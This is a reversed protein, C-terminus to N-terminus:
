LQSSFAHLRDHVDQTEKDHQRQMGDACGLRNLFFGEGQLSRFFYDGRRNGFGFILISGTASDGDDIFAAIKDGHLTQIIGKGRSGIDGDALRPRRDLKFPRRLKELVHDVLSPRRHCRKGVEGRQLAAYRDDDISLDNSRHDRSAGDRDSRVFDVDFNDSEIRCDVGDNRKVWLDKLERFTKM